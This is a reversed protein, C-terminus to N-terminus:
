GGEGSMGKAFAELNRSREVRLSPSIKFYRCNACLPKLQRGRWSVIVVIVKEGGRACRRRWPLIRTGAM